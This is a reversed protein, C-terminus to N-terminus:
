KYHIHIAVNAVVAVVIVLVALVIFTNKMAKLAGHSM